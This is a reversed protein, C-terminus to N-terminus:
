VNASSQGAALAIRCWDRIRARTQAQPEDAAFPDFGVWGPGLEPAREAGSAVAADVRGAGVRLALERMGYALGFICQERDLAAVWAYRMPDPCYLSVGPLGRCGLDLESAVDSHASPQAQDLFALVARNQAVRLREDILWTV